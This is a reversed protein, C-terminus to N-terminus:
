LALKVRAASADAAIQAKLEDLGAFRKEGRLRAVLHLRLRSAYLDGAFDFVFTEVTRHGGHVTVTPRVGINTVGGGSGVPRAIGDDGIREVRTAYVGDPPLMEAVPHVNATPFGLTRGRQDGQVVPGSLEHARGLVRAAEDLDGADIAERVRTSSYPGREDSAIAHVYVEFGLQEGMARLATLDGARKAGFRFNQGVVVVRAQLAGCVLEHVFRDPSWAAFAADFRRVWVRDVGLAGMLQARRELTTLLAPAGLGVVAAPHPDFTLVSTGLSKRGAIAVAERLVAAHGLHVGDFNGIVMVCPSVAPLAPAHEDILHLAGM